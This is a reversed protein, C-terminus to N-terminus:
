EKEVKVSQWEADQIELVNTSLIRALNNAQKAPLNAVFTVEVKVTDGKDSPSRCVAISEVPVQM